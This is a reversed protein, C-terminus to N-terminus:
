PRPLDKFAPKPADEQRQNDYRQEEVRDRQAPANNQRYHNETAIVSAQQQSDTVKFRHGDDSNLNRVVGSYLIRNVATPEGRVVAHEGSRWATLAAALDNNFRDSKDDPAAYVEVRDGFDTVAPKGDRLYNVTGDRLLRSEHQNSRFLPADDAVGYIVVANPQHGANVHQRSKRKERYAWGRMQSLAAVDGQLAEREVWGKWSLPRNAGSASLAQREDRLQLRLEARAKMKDFEAVRYMLKRLIPDRVTERLRAKVVKCHLTIEEFRARSRLDPKEWGARYAEFRARLVERAVAREERRERRAEQDRVHLQPMYHNYMGLMGDEPRDPNFVPPAEQFGGCRRTMEPFSIAPHVDSAKVSVGEPHLLDFVALGGNQERLGLGQTYLLNHLQPWDLRGETQAKEIALHSERVAYGHLSERDSFIERARAGRPAAVSDRPTRVLEESDNLHWSGNDVAYSFKREMERCSQQLHDYDKWLSVSKFTVPNVRNVAVHVHVNDTDRHVAAVYQHGEMNLKKLSEQVCTFIDNDLPKDEERWSLIYHYVPDPCRRSQIAVAKMEMAATDLSFCNTECVVEGCIVRQRGDTFSDTVIGSEDFLADDSLSNLAADIEVSLSSDRSGDTPGHAGNIINKESDRVCLYTILKHFSTGGDNRKQPTIANM